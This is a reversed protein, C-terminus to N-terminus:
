RSASPRWHFINMKGAGPPTNVLLSLGSLRRIDEIIALKAESRTEGRVAAGIAGTLLDTIQMPAVEDSRVIQVREIYEHDFDHVANALVGHLRASKPGGRSDKIDLYIRSHRPPATVKSLLQYYMKYYWDDHTHADDFVTRDKDRAILGRFRLDPDAFFFAVLARYFDLQAGSVATWKAEFGPRIGHDAKIVRIAASVRAVESTPLFIAGLAMASKHDRELHCSEDCYFSFQREDTM